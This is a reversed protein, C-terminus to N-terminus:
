HAAQPGDPFLDPNTVQEPTTTQNEQNVWNFFEQGHQDLANHRGGFGHFAETGSSAFSDSMAAVGAPESPAAAVRIIEGGSTREPTGTVTLTRGSPNNTSVVM